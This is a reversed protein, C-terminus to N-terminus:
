DQCCLCLLLESYRKVTLTDKSLGLQPRDKLGAKPFNIYQEDDDTTHFGPKVTEDFFEMGSAYARTERFKVFEKEGVVTKM